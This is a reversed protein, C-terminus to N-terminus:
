IEDSDKKVIVIEDGSFWRGICRNRYKVKDFMAKVKENVADYGYEANMGHMNTIDIFLMSFREMGKMAKEIGDRTLIGLIPDQYLADMRADYDQRMKEIDIGIIKGSAHEAHICSEMLLMCKKVDNLDPYELDVYLSKLNIYNSNKKYTEKFHRYRPEFIAIIIGELDFVKGTHQSKYVLQELAKLDHYESVYEIYKEFTLLGHLALKRELM